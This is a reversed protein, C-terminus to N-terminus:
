KKKGNGIGRFYNEFIGKKGETVAKFCYFLRKLSKDHLIAGLFILQLGRKITQKQESNATTNYTAVYNRILFFQKWVPMCEYDFTKGFFSLHAYETKPHYYLSEVVTIVKVGNNKCRMMYEVEDGRIFYEKKVTGIKEYVSKGILSGNFVCACNEIIGSEINKRQEDLTNYKTGIKFSLDNDNYLVNCNILSCNDEKQAVDMLIELTNEDRPRGDDDMLWVWDYGDKCAKELGYSFGGAGGMNTELKIHTVTNETKSLECLYESTGDTSGNDIVYIGDPKRKQLYLMGLNKKLEDLRNYTVVVAAVSNM